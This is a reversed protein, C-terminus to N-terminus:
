LYPALQSVKCSSPSSFTLQIFKRTWGSMKCILFSPASVLCKGLVCLYCVFHGTSMSILAFPSSVHGSFLEKWVTPLPQGPWSELAQGEAEIHLWTYCDSDCCSISPVSM